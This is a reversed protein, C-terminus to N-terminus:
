TSIMFRTPRDVALYAGTNSCHIADGPGLGLDDFGPSPQKLGPQFHM